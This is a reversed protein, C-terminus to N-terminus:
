RGPKVPALPGYIIGIFAPAADEAAMTAADRPPARRPTRL